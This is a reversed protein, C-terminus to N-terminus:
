QIEKQRPEIMWVQICQIEHLLGLKGEHHMLRLISWGFEDKEEISMADFCKPCVLTEAHLAGEFKTPKGCRECNWTGTHLGPPLMCLQLRDKFPYLDPVPIVSTDYTDNKALYEGCQKGLLFITTGVFGIVVAIFCSGWFSVRDNSMTM